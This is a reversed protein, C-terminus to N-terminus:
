QPGVLPPVRQTWLWVLLELGNYFNLLRNNHQGLWQAYHADSMRFQLASFHSVAGEWLHPTYRVTWAIHKLTGKLGLCRQPQGVVFSPHCPPRFEAVQPFGCLFCSEFRGPVNLLREFAQFPAGFQANTGPCQRFTLHDRSRVTASIVWCPACNGDLHAAMHGLLVVKARKRVKCLQACQADLRISMSTGGIPSSTPPTDAIRARKAARPSALEPPPHRSPEDLAGAPVRHRLSAPEPDCLISQIDQLLPLNPDCIDCALADPIDSCTAQNGNYARSFVLRRCETRNRFLERSEVFCNVDLEGETAAHEHCQGDDVLLILSQQGKRGARGAGQPLLLLGPKYNAFVVCNCNGNDVGHVCTSTCVLWKEDGEIWRLEDADRRPWGAFSICRPPEEFHEVEDKSARFIIGSGGDLHRGDLLTQLDKLFWKLTMTAPKLKIRIFRLNAQLLPARVLRSEPPQGIEERFRAELKLPITASLWIKQCDLEALWLLLRFKGRFDFDYLIQHAEDFVIRAVRGPHRHYFSKFAPSVISELAVFILTVDNPVNQSGVSWRHTRLGLKVANRQQDQLLSRNPCMVVTWSGEQHFAPLQYILSKGAGTPLVAIFNHKREMAMTVCVGQEPLKWDARDDNLFDRLVDLLQLGPYTSSDDSPPASPPTTQTPTVSPDGLSPSGLPAEGRGRLLSGNSRHLIEVFADAIHAQMRSELSFGMKHVQEAIVATLREFLVPLDAGPTDSGAVAADHAQPLAYITGKQMRRDVISQIAPFGPRLGLVQHWLLCAARYRLLLDSSLYPLHHHEPAYAKRSTQLKHGRLDAFIDDEDDEVQAASGLRTRFIELQMQRHPRVSLKVKCHAATFRELLVSLRDEDILKGASAWLYEAHLIGEPVGKTATVLEVIAPRVVVLYRCLLEALEPPVLVPVFVEHNIQTEYKMRRVVLWVDSGNIFLTRPRTGNCHKHDAFEAGRSSSSGAFLLPMFWELFNTDLELVTNVGAMNFMFSGDADLKGINVATGDMIGRLYPRNGAVLARNRTFGYGRQENTWDDEPNEVALLPIDMGFLLRDLRRRAEELGARIGERYSPFHLTVDDYSFVNMDESVRMAPPLVSLYALSSIARQMEIVTNYPSSASVCLNEMGISEVALVTGRILYELRALMQTSDKAPKLLGDERVCDIACLCELPIDFKGTGQSVNGPKRAFLFVSIFAHFDRLELPHFVALQAPDTPVPADLTRRYTDCVDEEHTTLPLRYTTPCDASLTRLIGHAFRHLLGGYQFLTTNSAHPKWVAGHNDVRPCQMLLSRVTLSSGHSIRRIEVLYAPVVRHMRDLGCETRASAPPLVMLSRLAEVLRRDTLWEALHVDYCTLSNMPTNERASVPPPLENPTEDFRNGFGRLYSSFLDDPPRGALSPEVEFWAQSEPFFFTQIGGRRAGLKHTLYTKGRARHAETRWHKAMTSEAPAAYRCARCIWGDPVTRLGEVPASGFEPVLAGSPETLVHHTTCVDRFSLKISAPQLPLGHKSHIHDLAASPLIAHDCGLCILVHETDHIRLGLLPLPHPGTLHSRPPPTPATQSSVAQPRDLLLSANPPESLSADLPTLLSSAPECRPPSAHPVLGEDGAPIPTTAPISQTADPESAAPTLVDPPPPLSPLQATVDSVTHPSGCMQLHEVLRRIDLVPTFGGEASSCRPCAVTGLESRLVDFLSPDSLPHGTCRTMCLNSITEWFSQM